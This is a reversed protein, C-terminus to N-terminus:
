AGLYEIHAYTGLRPNYGLYWGIHDPDEYVVIQDTTWNWGEVINYDFAAVDWFFGDFGFHERTGGSLVWQHGPGFGGGFHGHAWPTAMAYHPDSKGSDHGVWQDTAAHVHPVDPHGATTKGKEAVHNETAPAAEKSHAAPAAARAPAAAHAPAAKAPAPGHAPVHGGGVAPHAAAHPAAGHEQAFAVMCILVSLGLLKKL